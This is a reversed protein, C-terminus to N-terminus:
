IDEGSPIEKLFRYNKTAFDIECCFHEMGNSVIIYRALLSMNYRAIQDFVKQTIPIHPAKYEVVIAPRCRRDFIVTDCRRSLNNVKLGFENAIRHPSHHREVILWDVFHQRVWEEPTLAVWKRRLPDFIEAREAGVSIREPAIAPLNLKPLGIIKM